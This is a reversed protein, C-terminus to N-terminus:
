IKTTSFGITLLPFIPIGNVPEIRGCTVAQGLGHAQINGIDYTM